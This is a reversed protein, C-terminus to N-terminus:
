CAVKRRDFTLMAHRDSAHIDLEMRARLQAHQTKYAVIGAVARRAIGKVPKMAEGIPALNISILGQTGMNRPRAMEAIGKNVIEKTGSVM